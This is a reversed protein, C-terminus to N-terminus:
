QCPFVEIIWPAMVENVSMAYSEAADLQANCLALTAATVQIPFKKIIPDEGKPTNKHDYYALYSTAHWNKANPNLPYPDKIILRGSYYARASVSNIMSLGIVLIILTPLISAIKKM